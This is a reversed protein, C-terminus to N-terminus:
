SAAPKANSFSTNSVSSSTASQSHSATKLSRLLGTLGAIGGVTIFLYFPLLPDKDFGLHSVLLTAACLVTGYAIGKVVM